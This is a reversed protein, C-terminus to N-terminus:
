IPYEKHQKGDLLSGAQKKGIRYYNENHAHVYILKKYPKLKIWRGPSEITGTINVQVPEKLPLANGNRIEVVKTNEHLNVKINEM